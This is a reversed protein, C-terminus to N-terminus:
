RDLQGLSAPQEQGLLQEGLRIQRHDLNGEGAPEGADSPEIREKARM